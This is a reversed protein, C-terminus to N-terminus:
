PGLSYGVVRAASVAEVGGLINIASWYQKCIVTGMEAVM